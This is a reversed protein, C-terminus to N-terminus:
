SRGAETNRSLALPENRSVIVLFALSDAGHLMNTRRQRKQGLKNKADVDRGQERSSQLVPDTPILM